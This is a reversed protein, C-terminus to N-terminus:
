PKDEQLLARVQELVEQSRLRQEAAANGIERLGAELEKIRTDRTPVRKIDAKCLAAVEAELLAIREQVNEPVAIFDHV